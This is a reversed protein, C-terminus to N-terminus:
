GGPDSYVLVAPAEVAGLASPPFRPEETDADGPPVAGDAAPDSGASEGGPPALAAPQSAPSSAEPVLDSIGGTLREDLPPLYLYACVAAVAWFLVVVWRLRVIWLGFYGFAGSPASPGRVPPTPSDTSGVRRVAWLKCGFSLPSGPFGATFEPVDPPDRPHYVRVTVSRPLAVREAVM